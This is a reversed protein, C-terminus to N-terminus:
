MSWFSLPWLFIVKFADKWTKKADGAKYMRWYRLAGIILYVAILAFFIIGLVTFFTNM